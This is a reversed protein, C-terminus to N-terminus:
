FLTPKAFLPGFIRHFLHCFKLHHHKMKLPKSYRLKLTSSYQSSKLNRIESQLNSNHAM